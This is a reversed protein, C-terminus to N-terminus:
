GALLAGWTAPGAIGDPILGRAAQFAEVAAETRRGFRGDAAGPDFGSAVLLSQLEPVPAGTAGRRLTRRTDPQLAALYETALAAIDAARDSGNIVRRAGEFDCRTASVYEPLAHGTFWGEMAGRVLIQVAAEPALVTDPDSTFDQGLKEGAGAYNYDWTLQVLGRGYWPYYDKSKRYAEARAASLWCAERVPELHAATEWAATALIYATQAPTCGCAEAAARIEPTLGLTMDTM